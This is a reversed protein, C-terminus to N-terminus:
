NNNFSKKKLLVRPARIAKRQERHKAMRRKDIKNILHCVFFLTTIIFCASVILIVYPRATETLYMM